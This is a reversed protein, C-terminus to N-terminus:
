EALIKTIIKKTNLEMDLKSGILFLLQEAVFNDSRLMLDKYLSDSNMQYVTEFSQDIPGNLYYIDKNLLESLAFTTFTSDQYFPIEYERAYSPRENPNITIMNSYEARTLFQKATLDTQVYREMFSLSININTSDPHYTIRTAQGLIPFASKEKQFYYVYDDWSWGSGFRGTTM